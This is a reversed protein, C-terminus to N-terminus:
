PLQLPNTWSLGTAQSVFKESNSNIALAENGTCVYSPGVAGLAYLVPADNTTAPDTSRRELWCTNNAGLSAIGVVDAGSSVAVSVTSDNASVSSGSVYDISPDIGALESLNATFQQDSSYYQVEAQAAAEASLQASGDTGVSQAFPLQPIALATLIIAVVATIIVEALTFARPHSFRSLPM